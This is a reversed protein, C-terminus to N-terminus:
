RGTISLPAWRTALVRVTGGGRPPVYSVMEIREVSNLTQNVKSRGTFPRLLDGGWSEYAWTIGNGRRTHRFTDRREIASWVLAGGSTTRVAYVPMASAAYAATGTWGQARFTKADQLLTQRNSKAWDPVSFSRLHASRTGQNIVDALAASVRGPAVALSPDDLPAVDPHDAVDVGPALAGKTRKTDLPTYAALWPGGPRDQVFVILDRIPRSGGRDTMAAFFWKPHASFKPTAALVQGYRAPEIRMRNAKFVKYKAGAMQLSSGTFAAAARRADLRKHALNARATFRALVPGVQAKTLAPTPPPPAATTRAADTRAGDEGGGCAGAGLSVVLVLALSARIPAHHVARRAQVPRRAQVSL